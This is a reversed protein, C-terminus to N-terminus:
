LIDEFMQDIEDSNYNYNNNYDDGYFEMYDKFQTQFDETTMYSRSFILLIITLVVTVCLGAISIGLGTKARDSMRSGGKSLLALIIGLAALPVSLFCCCSCVIGIIGLILSATAMGNPEVVQYNNQTQQNYGDTQQYNNGTQQYNQTQQVNNDSQQYSQSQQYIDDTQQYNDVTRSNEVEQIGDTAPDSQENSPQNDLKEDSNPYNNEDSM